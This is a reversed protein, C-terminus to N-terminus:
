NLAQPDARAILVRLRECSRLDEQCLQQLFQAIIPDTDNFRFALERLRKVSARHLDLDQVLRAWHSMSASSPPLAPPEPPLGVGRQRLVSRIADVQRRTSKALTSLGKRSYEQPSAEAHQELLALRQVAGAYAQRLVGAPDELASSGGVVFRGVKQLFSMVTAVTTNLGKLTLSRPSELTEPKASAETADRIRSSKSDRDLLIM